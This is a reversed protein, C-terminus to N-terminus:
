TALYGGSSYAVVGTGTSGPRGVLRDIADDPILTDIAASGTLPLHPGDAVLFMRSMNIEPDSRPPEPAVRLRTMM